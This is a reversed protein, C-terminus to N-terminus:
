PQKQLYKLYTIIQWREEPTVQSAYSGMNNKGYTLTHFMRGETILGTEDGKFGHTYAPIAPYAGQAVISGDGKGALGHCVACFREYLVKGAAKNAVSDKATETPMKVNANAYEYGEPTAAVEYRVYVGGVMWSEARPMTGKVPKQANMGDRFVLNKYTGPNEKGISGSLINNDRVTYQYGNVAVSHYMNPAYEYGTDNGDQGCSGLVAAVVALTAWFLYSFTRNFM